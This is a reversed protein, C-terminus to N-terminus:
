DHGMRVVQKCRYVFMKVERKEDYRPGFVRFVGRQFFTEIPLYLEDGKIHDIVRNTKLSAYEYRYGLLSKLFPDLGCTEHSDRVYKCFVDTSLPLDRLSYFELFNLATLPDFDERIIQNTTKTDPTAITSSSAYGRKLNSLPKEYVVVKKFTECPYCM